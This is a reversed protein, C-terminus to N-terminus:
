EAPVLATPQADSRRLEHRRERAVGPVGDQGEVHLLRDLEAGQRLDPVRHVPHDDGGGAGGSALEDGAICQEGAM